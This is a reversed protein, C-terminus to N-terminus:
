TGTDLDLDITAHFADGPKLVRWGAAVGAQELNIADTTCTYPELCIAKRHPPNFAVLERFEDGYASVGLCCKKSSAEITGVVLDGFGTFVDDAQMDAIRKGDRLDLDGRVESRGGTPLNSELPWFESANVSVLAAEGDFPAVNLYPHYGLGFPMPKSDPNEVVAEVRLGSNLRLRYKVRIRYDTPWLELTEPADVSGQFEGTVWVSDHNTGEDVIRWAAHCAFGHIANKGSPDNKPLQYTKGGWAFRGDRIRNPFPFLIPFGSRTPRKEEFMKEDAYLLEHPGVRWRYANFGLAPWVELQCDDGSLVAVRDDLGITNPRRQWDIRFTVSAGEGERNVRFITFWCGVM